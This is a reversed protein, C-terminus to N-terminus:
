KRGLLYVVAGTLIPVLVVALAFAGVIKSQWREIAALRGEALERPMFSSAQDALQGRFENVADFRKETATEAKTVATQAADLALKVERQVGEFKSEVYEKFAPLTWDDEEAM